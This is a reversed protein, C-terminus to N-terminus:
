LFTINTLVCVVSSSIHSNPCCKIIKLILFYYWIDLQEESKWNKLRSFKYLDASNTFSCFLFLPVLSFIRKVCGGEKVFGISKFVLILVIVSIFACHIFVATCIDEYRRWMKLKTWVSLVRETNGEPIPWLLGSQSTQDRLLWLVM